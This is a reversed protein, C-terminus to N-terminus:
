QTVTIPNKPTDNLTIKWGAPLPQHLPCKFKCTPASTPARQNANGTGERGWFRVGRGMGSGLELGRDSKAVAARSLSISVKSSQM